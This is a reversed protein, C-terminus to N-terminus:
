RPSDERLLHAHATARGIHTRSKPRTRRPRSNAAPTQARLDWTGESGDGRANVYNSAFTHRKAWEDGHELKCAASPAATCDLIFVAMGGGGGIWEDREGGESM